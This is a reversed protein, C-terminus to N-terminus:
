LSYPPTIEIDYAVANGNDICFGSGPDINVVLPNGEADGWYFDTEVTGSMDMSKHYYFYAEDQDGGPGITMMLDGWGIDGEGPTNGDDLNVASIDIPAAFPNGTFNLGERASFSVKGKNVEGANVITYEVANGNDIAFGDGADFSVSVPNGEADGWYFDTEVTGSMDMSKHYYFYAEDQDGGPGVTMLLDGWGVDGEGPTAGDNLNISNIDTTNQGVSLFHPAYWNLGERSDKNNYGVVQSEVAIAAGAAVLAAAFMLKKM